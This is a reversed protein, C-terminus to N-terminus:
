PDSDLWVVETDIRGNAYLNLWRFGPPHERNYVALAEIAALAAPTYVDAYETLLGDRLHLRTTVIGTARDEM